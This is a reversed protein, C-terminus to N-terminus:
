VKASSMEGGRWSAVFGNGGVGDDGSFSDSDTAGRDYPTQPEGVDTDTDGSALRAGEESMTQRLRSSDANLEPSAADQDTPDTYPEDPAAASWVEQSLQELEDMTVWRGPGMYHVFRVEVADDWHEATFEDRNGQFGDADRRSERVVSKVVARKKISPHAQTYRRRGGTLVNLYKRVISKGLQSGVSVKRGTKPNEIKSYM